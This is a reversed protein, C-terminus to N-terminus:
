NKRILFMGDRVPLMTGFLEPDNKVFANVEKISNTTKRAKDPIENEEMAVKGSWLCNDIIIIGNESLKDRTLKLYNLYNNKDADIFVLDFEGTLGPITDIAPALHATIKKGHESKDWYSKAVENTEKNIDLTIVEGDSPLFSAMALASYGTYTGIELVRKANISKLLFGLLSAELKGILMQPSYINAKTYAELEDNIGSVSDSHDTCYKNILEGTLMLEKPLEQTM